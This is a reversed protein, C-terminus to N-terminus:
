RGITTLRPYARIVMRAPDRRWLVTASAALVVTAGGSVTLTWGAGIVAVIPGGLTAGLPAAVILAASRAALVSPLNATTTVSQFLAYTLPVFPRYVVGGVAFCVLTVASPAVAFPLLCAGWGVVILLTIRRTARRRLAGVLLTSFLAGVGFSTWYAGLLGAHAHLDHAVCCAFAPSRPPPM